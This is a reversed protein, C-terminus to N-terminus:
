PSPEKHAFIQTQDLTILHECGTLLDKQGTYLRSIARKSLPIGSNESLEINANFAPAALGALSAPDAEDASTSSGLEEEKQLARRENKSDKKSGKGFTPLFPGSSVREPQTGCRRLFNTPRRQPQHSNEIGNGWVTKEERGHLLVAEMYYYLADYSANALCPPLHMM